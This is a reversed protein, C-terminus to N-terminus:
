VSVTVGELPGATVAVAVIVTFGAPGDIVLKLALGAAMVAPWDELRVPTKAPPVPTMVGPLREAVLPVPTETLGVAVVV